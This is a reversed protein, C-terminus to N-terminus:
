RKSLCKKTGVKNLVGRTLALWSAGRVDDIFIYWQGLRILAKVVV